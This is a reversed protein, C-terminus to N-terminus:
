DVVLNQPYWQKFLIEKIWGSRELKAAVMGTQARTM